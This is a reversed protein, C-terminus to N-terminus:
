DDVWLPQMTEADYVEARKLCMNYDDDDCDGWDWINCLEYVQYSWYFYYDCEKSYYWGKCNTPKERYFRAM